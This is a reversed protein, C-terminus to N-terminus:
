STKKVSFALLSSVLSISINYVLSFLGHFVLAEIDETSYIHHIAHPDGPREDLPNEIQNGYSCINEM